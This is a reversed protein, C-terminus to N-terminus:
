HSWKHMRNAHIQILFCCFPSEVDLESLNLINTFRNSYRSM